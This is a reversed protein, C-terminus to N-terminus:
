KEYIKTFAEEVLRDQYDALLQFFRHGVMISLKNNLNDINDYAEDLKVENEDKLEILVNIEKKLTENEEILQNYNELIDQNDLQDESRM